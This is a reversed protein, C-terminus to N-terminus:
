EGLGADFERLLKDPARTRWADTILAALEDPEIRTLRVMVAPYGNYHDTTFFTAPDADLLMQKEDQDAVRVCLVEPNPVRPRKPHVKEPYIWVFLKGNVRYGLGEEVAGPLALAILRVDNQDSM